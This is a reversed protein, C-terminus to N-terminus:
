QTGAHSSQSPQAHRRRWFPQDAWRRETAYQVSREALYRRLTADARRAYASGAAAAGNSDAAFWGLITDAAACGDDLAGSIGASTLPDFGILADGAALWGTGGAKDIHQSAAPFTTVKDPPVPPVLVSLRTTAAWGRAFIGPDRWGGARAIDDDTMLSVIASGDPLPAAYWWGEATAEVLSRGALGGASGPEAKVSLAVLRDHRRRTAGLRTALAARRGSADVLVTSEVALDGQGGALRVRWRGRCREVEALVAPALLAAGAEVAAARLRSDFAGRDLHWGHGLGRSLFDAEAPTSSGWLSINGHYPLHGLTALDGSFGLRALSARVGPAASEGARLVTGLPRDILMVREVGARRLALAAAAGAPGAGVILVEVTRIRSEDTV